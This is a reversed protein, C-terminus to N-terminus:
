KLDLALESGATRRLVTTAKLSPFWFLWMYLERESETRQVVMLAWTKSVQWDLM